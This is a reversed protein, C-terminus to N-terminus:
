GTVQDCERSNEPMEVRDVSTSKMFEVLNNASELTRQGTQSRSRQLPSSMDGHMEMRDVKTDKVDEVTYNTYESQRQSTLSMPVSSPNIGVMSSDETIEVRDVLTDKEYEVTITVSRAQRKNTHSKSMRLWYGYSHKDAAWENAVQTDM